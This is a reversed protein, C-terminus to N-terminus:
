VSTQVLKATSPDYEFSAISGEQIKEVADNIVSLPVLFWERPKIPNGFRDTVSLSKM